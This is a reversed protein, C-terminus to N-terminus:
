ATERVILRPELVVHMDSLDQKNIQGFLLGAAKEGMSYKPQEVTTLAPTVISAAPIDDYGIISVEEPIRIGKKILARMAGLAILDNAAFVSKVNIERKLLSEVAEYGGEHSVRCEIVLEENFECNHAKLANMYGTMRDFYTSIALPGTIFAMEPGNKKLLYDAAIFGGKVNDIMVSCFGEGLKRDVIVVPIDKNNRLIQRNKGTGLFILGDIDKNILTNLYKIEKQRDEGTNCLIVSYGHKHSIDEIGRVIEIFFINSIDPVIIGITLTKKTKLSRAVISPQYDMDQMIKLIRERTEPKVSKTGNLVYSVTSAAVNASKAIDRITAM